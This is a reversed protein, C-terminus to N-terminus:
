LHHMVIDHVQSTTLAVHVHVDTTSDDTIYLQTMQLTSYAQTIIMIILNHDNNYFMYMYLLQKM